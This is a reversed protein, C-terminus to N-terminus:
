LSTAHGECKYTLTEWANLGFNKKTYINIQYCTTEFHVLERKRSWLFSLTQIINDWNALIVLLFSNIFHLILYAIIIKADIIM